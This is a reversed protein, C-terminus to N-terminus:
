QACQLWVLKIHGWDWGQAKINVWKGSGEARDQMDNRHCHAKKYKDETTPLGGQM